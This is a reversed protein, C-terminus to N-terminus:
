KVDAQRYDTFRREYDASFSGNALTIGASIDIGRPLWVGPFPQFMAMSARMEDVRVLWAGPLFDLWVNEFTYKVIQHEKPDVWLTVLATKNMKREIDHELQKERDNREQDRKIERPTKEDDKGGFLKTPYYEIRLVDVGDLQERGALLYNGPEFKFDMFYAQSVFRPETPLTNTSIESPSIVVQKSEPEVNEGRAKAKEREAERVIRAKERRLWREEYEVRAEEPISVGEYRLPSRVHIGERVFWTYDRDTRHLRYRGPGLIEFTEREDLIYDNMVKRTVERKALVKEMFADLDTSPAKIAEQQATLPISSLFVVLALVCARPIFRRFFM